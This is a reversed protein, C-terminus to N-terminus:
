SESNHFLIREDKTNEDGSREEDKEKLDRKGKDGLVQLYSFTHPM